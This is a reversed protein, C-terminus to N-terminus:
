CKKNELTLSLYLKNDKFLNFFDTFTYIEQTLNIAYRTLQVEM